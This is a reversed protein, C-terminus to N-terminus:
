GLSGFGRLKSSAMSPRTCSFFMSLFNSIFLPLHNSCTCWRKSNVMFFPTRYTSNSALGVLLSQLLMCLALPLPRLWQASPIVMILALKSTFGKAVLRAKCRELTDDARHKTHFIWCCGVLNQASNSPVLTWTKNSMLTQFEVEMVHRWEPFRVAETVCSPEDLISTLATHHARPPPWTMTGDCFQSPRLSNTQSRTTM